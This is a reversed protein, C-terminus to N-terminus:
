ITKQPEVKLCMENYLHFTKYISGVHFVAFIVLFTIILMNINIEKTFQYIVYTILLISASALIFNSRWTINNKANFCAYFLMEAEQEDEQLDTMPPRNLLRNWDSVEWIIAFVLIVVLM